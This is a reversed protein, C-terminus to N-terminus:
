PVEYTVILIATGNAANNNQGEYLCQITRATAGVTGVLAFPMDANDGMRNVTSSSVDMDNVLSKAQGAGATVPWGCRLVDTGGDDFLVSVILMTDVIRANAPIVGMTKTVGDNEEDLTSYLQYVNTATQATTPLLTIGANLTSDAGLVVGGNLTASGTVGLTSDMKVAGNFGAISNADLAGGLTVTGTIKVTSNFIVAAAFRGVNSVDLSDAITFIGASDSVNGRLDSTSTVALTSNGIIAGTFRATDKVDAKDNITFIGASDSVDGRLDSTSTIALTSNGIIGATFRAVDKVDTKDNITLIGAGDTIDGRLDSTATVVIDNTAINDTVDLDDTIYGDAGTVSTTFTGTNAVLAGAFDVTGGFGVTSGSQIDVAGGSQVELEGGTEVILQEGGEAFHVPTQYGGSLPSAVEPAVPLFLGAIVTALLLLVLGAKVYKNGWLTTLM